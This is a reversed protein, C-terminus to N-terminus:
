SGGRRLSPGHQAKQGRALGVPTREDGDDFPKGGPQRDSGVLDGALKGAAPEAEPSTWTLTELGVLDTDETANAVPASQPRRDRDLDCIGLPGFPLRLHGRLGAMGRTPECLGPRTVRVEGAHLLVTKIVGAVHELASRSTLRGRSHRCARAGLGEQGLDADRDHAMDDLDATRVRGCPQARQRVVERRDIRRRHPAEVRRRLGGHDGLYLGCGLVPVGETAGGLDHSVPYRNAQSAVNVPVALEVAENGLRQHANLRHLGHPDAFAEVDCAAPSRGTM